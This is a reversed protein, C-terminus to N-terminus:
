LEAEFRAEIFHWAGNVVNMEVGGGNDIKTYLAATPNQQVAPFYRFGALPRYGEPLTFIPYNNYNSGTHLFMGKIEVYNDYTKRISLYEFFGAPNNSLSANAFKPVIEGNSLIEDENWTGGAGYTHSNALIKRWPENKITSSVKVWSHFYGQVTISEGPLLTYYTFPDGYTQASTAYQAQAEIIGVSFAKTYSPDTYFFESGGNTFKLRVKWVANYNLNKITILRGRQTVDPIPLVIDYNWPTNSIASPPIYPLVPIQLTDAFPRLIIVSDDAGVNYTQTYGPPPSTPNTPELYKITTGFSGLVNLGLYPDEIAAGGVNGRGVNMKGSGNPSITMYSNGNLQTKFSVIGSKSQLLLKGTSDIGLSFGQTQDIMALGDVPTMSGMGLGTMADIGGYQFILPTQTSAKSLINKIASDYTYAGVGSTDNPAMAHKAVFVGSGDIYFKIKYSEDETTLTPTSSVMRVNGLQLHTRVALDTNSLTHDVYISQMATYFASPSISLASLNYNHLFLIDNTFGSLTPTKDNYTEDANVFSIYRDTGVTGNLQRTFTLTSTALYSSIISGFNLVPLWTVGDGQLQWAEQTNLYFDGIIAGLSTATPPSTLTGTYWFTGRPGVLGLQGIPGVPGLYGQNGVTGQKGVGLALLQNFDFNLKSALTEASDTPFFEKLHIQVSTSM